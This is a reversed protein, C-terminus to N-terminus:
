EAFYSEAEEIIIIDKTNQLVKMFKKQRIWNFIRHFSPYGRKNILLITQFGPATKAGTGGASIEQPSKSCGLKIVAAQVPITM